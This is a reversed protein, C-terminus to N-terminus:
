EWPKRRKDSYKINEVVVIIIKVLWYIALGIFIAEVFYKAM